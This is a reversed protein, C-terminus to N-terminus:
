KISPINKYYSCTESCGCISMKKIRCNPINVYRKQGVGIETIDDKSYGFDTCDEKLIM